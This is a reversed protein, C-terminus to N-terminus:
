AKVASNNLLSMISVVSGSAPDVVAGAADLCKITLSPAALSSISTSPANQIEITAVGSLGSVPSQVSGASFLHANFNNALNIKYIGTSSKVVSNTMTGIFSTVAGSAGITINTNVIVPM